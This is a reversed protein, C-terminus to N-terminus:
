SYAMRRGEGHHRVLKGACYQVDHWAQFMLVPWLWDSHDILGGIHEAWVHRIRRVDLKGSQELARPALLAEAWPRLPGRLWAGLPVGFGSKPRDILDKPVYRALLERLVWKGKGDLTKTSTPITMAAEIVSVDLFPVRTELSISMAARDVKCLIDDPLYSVMDKCMMVSQPDDRLTSPVPLAAWPSPLDFVRQAMPAGDPWVMLIGDFVDQLGDAHRMHSAIRRIQGVSQRTGSLRSVASLFRPSASGVIHGTATRVIGPLRGILNWIRDAWFYRGYGCFLEDGADGSLSVTVHRRALQSVLITPIQSVDAFPEDFVNPLTPVVDHADREGVVFEEHDTRLHSAIDRAFGSEDFAKDQFGITFTKVPDQSQAQMLAVILSSDVGGSLFAGLPVDALMQRKIAASLRQETLDVAEAPSGHFSNALVGFREVTDWYKVIELSEHSEGPKLPSDPRTRPPNGRVYLLCGPQLKYIGEHISYPAPVYSLHFFLRLADDCIESQSAPHARLAKLESGFVLSDGAWGWYLPKEGLRDRALILTRNLEDWVAFAFMGNLRKVAAELGWADISALLTETDSLGRWDPQLGAAELETRLDLHNYIEGNFVIVYRGSASQM